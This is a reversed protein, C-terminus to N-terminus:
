FLSHFQALAEAYAGALDFAADREALAIELRKELEECHASDPVTSPGTQQFYGNFAKVAGEKSKFGRFIAKSCGQVQASAEELPIICGPNGVLLCSMNKGANLLDACWVNHKVKSPPIVQDELYKAINQLLKRHRKELGSLNEDETPLEASRFLHRKGLRIYDLDGVLLCSAILKAVICCGELSAIRHFPPGWLGKVQAEVEDLQNSFQQHFTQQQANLNEYFDGLRDIYEGHKIQTQIIEEQRQEIRGLSDKLEGFYKLFWAPPGEQTSTEGQTPHKEHSTFETDVRIGEHIGDHEDDSREGQEQEQVHPDEPIGEFPVITLDIEMDNNGENGGKDEGEGEDFGLSKGKKVTNKSFGKALGQSPQNDLSIGFHLFIRTLFAGFPLSRTNHNRVDAMEKLIIYNLNLPEEMTAKYIIFADMNTVQGYHGAKPIINHAIYRHFLRLEPKLHKTETVRAVGEIAIVEYLQKKSVYKDLHSPKCRSNFVAEPEEPNPNDGRRDNSAHKTIVM